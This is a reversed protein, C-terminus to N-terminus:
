VRRRVQMAMGEWRECWAEAELLTLIRVFETGAIQRGSALIGVLAERDLIGAAAIRGDLLREAIEHRRTHILRSCFGDPGGKTRRAVIAPPLVERFAERAVSRDRGGACWEWSPIALCAEIVPQTMLPTAVDIGLAGENAQLHNQIRLLQAVHAAKGPLIKRPADLWPHTPSVQACEERCEASLLMPDPSWAYRRASTPLKRAANRLAAVPGCGNLACIDVLTRMARPGIGEALLRDTLATATQSYGFVNDGGNGSLFGDAHHAHAVRRIAANYAQAEARSTPRPLDPSAARSFDVDAVSYQAVLLPLDLVESLHCAYDYDDGDPEGTHLTIAVLDAKRRMAMAAVISSDLGGSIGIAMRSHGAVSAAVAQGVARRLTDAAACRDFSAQDGVHDWPSWVPETVVEGQRIEARFGPLLECLGEIATTAAPLGASHLHRALAQWAVRPTWIASGALVDADSAFVHAHGIRAHVCQVAGSPDRLVWSRNEGSLLAVYNGWYREVLHGGASDVIASVETSDLSAVPSAPGYRPYLDGVVVGRGDLDICTTRRDALGISMSGGLPPSWSPGSGLVEALMEREGREGGVIMAYRAVTM